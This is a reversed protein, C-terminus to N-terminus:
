NRVGTTPHFAYWAFWLSYVWEVGDDARRVRLSNSEPNFEIVVAKGNIRDDVIRREKNFSTAPYARAVDGVWVGLVPQKQPLRDSAPGAPFMLGPRDLYGEYPDRSYNRDHGTRMSLVQTQPHRWLWDQWTTLEVPLSRVRQAGGPGSVGRAGIQSWLSEMGSTRDYMLVNSNYLMGSVGFEREGIPTRRDFVAVSDCLPCYTVAFPTHEIQDNVVEHFNLIKLPYARAIEGITVGAVRDGPNLFAAERAAVFQPHSLAPIGDKPPGGRMIEAVPIRAASLDFADGLNASTRQSGTPTGPAGAASRREAWYAIAIAAFFAVPLAMGFLRWVRIRRKGVPLVKTWSVVSPDLARLCDGDDGDAKEPTDGM